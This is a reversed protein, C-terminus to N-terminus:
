KNMARSVYNKVLYAVLGVAVISLCFSTTERPIDANTKVGDGGIHLNFDTTNKGNAM